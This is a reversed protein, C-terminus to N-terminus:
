NKKGLHYKVLLWLNIPFRLINPLEVCTYYETFFENNCSLLDILEMETIGNHAATIYNFILSIMKNNFKNEIIELIFLNLNKLM